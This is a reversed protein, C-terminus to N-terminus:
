GAIQEIVKKAAKDLVNVGFILAAFRQDQTQGHYYRYYIQQAIAALRFLGFCYYYQFDELPRGTRRAYLDIVERRTLAGELNSPMSRMLQREQPDDAQVWYALTNGLDMLPDGITAMEWDLVGTIRTPDGSDVVLNDLKFDNHVITARQADPPMNQGLWAMVTEFDPADDTRAARYRKCWGTVQREVYGAPKGFDGLGVAEYDISHLELQVEMLRTFLTRVQDRSLALGSPLDKRIIIGELREMVYFDCGMVEPDQCFALPQPCYAYTGHLASLVKFERNMDHASKAKTGHPPRRLVMQRGGMELLYTLNSFGRPFQRITLDGDLGPINDALFTQVRATDLEEGSRIQAAQDRHEM